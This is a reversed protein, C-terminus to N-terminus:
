LSHIMIKWKIQEKLIKFIKPAAKKKVHWCCKNNGLPWGDWYYGRKLKSLQRSTVTAPATFRAARGTVTQPRLRLKECTHSYFTVYIFFLESYSWLHFNESNMVLLNVGLIECKVFPFLLWNIIVTKQSTVSKIVNWCQWNNLSYAEIYYKSTYPHSRPRLKKGGGLM